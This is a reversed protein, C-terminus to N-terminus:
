RVQFFGARPFILNVFSNYQILDIKTCDADNLSFDICHLVHTDASVQEVYGCSNGNNLSKEERIGQMTFGYVFALFIM